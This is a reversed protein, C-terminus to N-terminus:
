FRVNSFAVNDRLALPMKISCDRVTKTQDRPVRVGCCGLEQSGYKFITDGRHGMKRNSIAAISSLERSANIVNANTESSIETGRAVIDSGLFITSFFGLPVYQQDTEPMDTIDFQRTKFLLPSIYQLETSFWAKVDEVLPDDIQISKAYKYVGVSTKEAKTFCTGWNKDTRDLILPQRSHYYNCKLAFEMVKEEVSM